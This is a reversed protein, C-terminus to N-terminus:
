TVIAVGWKSFLKEPMRDSSGPLVHTLNSDRIKLRKPAIVM